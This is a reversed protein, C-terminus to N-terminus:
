KKKIKHFKDDLMELVIEWLDEYPVIEIEASQRAIELPVSALKARLVKSKREVAVRHFDCKPLLLLMKIFCNSRFTDDKKLHRYCYVNLAEVKDIIRNYKKQQLLFLVQIILIPINYGRKDASYTPVENLFKNIRFKKEQKYNSKSLDIKKNEIFFNCYAEYIKWIEITNKYTLQFGFNTTIKTYIEFAKKYNKLHFNMRIYKENTNFWNITGEPVLKLASLIEQEAKNYEKIQILCNIKKSTFLFISIPRTNPKKEFKKLAENCVELVNRYDHVIEYRISFILYAIILFKNSDVNDLYTELQKSYNQALVIVEKSITKQNDIHIGLKTHLQEAITEAYFIELYIQSLQTYQEFKKKNKDHLGYHRSLKKLLNISIETFEFKLTQRLTKEAMEIAVKRAGRGLLIEIAALSKQSIYFARQTDNYNPKNVDIFFVSNVLRNQLRYKLKKYSGNVQNSPYLDRVADEDTEYEGEVIGKYLKQLKSSDNKTNGIVEIKAIKQKNVFFVLEKLNKM